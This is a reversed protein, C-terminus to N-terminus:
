KGYTKNMILDKTSYLSTLIDDNYKESLGKLKLIEFLQDKSPAEKYKLSHEKAIDFLDKVIQNSFYESKTVNVFKTNDLIYHFFLQETYNNTNNSM